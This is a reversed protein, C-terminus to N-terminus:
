LAAPLYLLMAQVVDARFAAEGAFHHVQNQLTAVVGPAIILLKM